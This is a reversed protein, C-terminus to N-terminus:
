NKGVLKTDLRIKITLIQFGDWITLDSRAIWETFMVHVRKSFKKRLIHPEKIWGKRCQWMSM